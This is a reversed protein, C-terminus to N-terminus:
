PCLYLGGELRIEAGCRVARWDSGVARRARLWSEESPLEGRFRM